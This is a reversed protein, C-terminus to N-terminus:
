PVEDKVDVYKEARLERELRQAHVCSLTGTAGFSDQVDCTSDQRYAFDYWAGDKELRLRKTTPQTNLTPPDVEELYGLSVNSPRERPKLVELRYRDFVDNRIDPSRPTDALADDTLFRESGQITSNSDGIVGYVANINSAFRRKCEDCNPNGYPEACMWCIATTM